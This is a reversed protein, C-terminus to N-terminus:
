HSPSDLTVEKRKGDITLKLNNRVLARMGLLPLRPSM